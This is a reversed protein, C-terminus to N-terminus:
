WASSIGKPSVKLESGSPPLSLSGTLSARFFTKQSQDTSHMAKLLSYLTILDSSRHNGGQKVQHPVGPLLLSDLLAPCSANSADSADPDIILTVAERSLSGLYGLVGLLLLPRWGLLLHRGGLLSPRWGLLSPRGVSLSPVLGFLSPRGGLLSPRWGLLLPRWGLKSPRWCVLSPRGGRAIAGLRHAIAEM